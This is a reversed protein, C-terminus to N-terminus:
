LVSALAQLLPFFFDLQSKVSVGVFCFSGATLMAVTVTMTVLSIKVLRGGM